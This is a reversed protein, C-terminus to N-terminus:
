GAGAGAGACGAGAGACGAGAAAADGSGCGLTISGSGERAGVRRGDGLAVGDADASDLAGGLASGLADDAGPSPAEVDDGHGM